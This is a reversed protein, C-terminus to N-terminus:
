GSEKHEGLHMNCTTGNGHCALCSQCHQPVAVGKVRLGWDDHSCVRMAPGADWPGVHSHKGIPSQALHWDDGEGIRTGKLEWPLRQAREPEAPCPPPAKGDKGGAFLIRHFLLYFLFHYLFIGQAVTLSEAKQIGSFLWVLCEKDNGTGVPMGLAGVLSQM